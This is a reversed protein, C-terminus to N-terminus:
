HSENGAEAPDPGSATVDPHLGTGVATRGGTMLQGEKWLRAGTETQLLRDTGTETRAKTRHGTLSM